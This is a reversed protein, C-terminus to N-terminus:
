FKEEQGGSEMTLSVVKRTGPNGYGGGTGSTQSGEQSFRLVELPPLLPFFYLSPGCWVCLLGRDEVYVCVCDKMNSM